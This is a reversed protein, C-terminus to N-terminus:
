AGDRLAMIVIARRLKKLCGSQSLLKRPSLLPARDIFFKSVFESGLKRAARSSLGKDDNPSLPKKHGRGGQKGASYAQAAKTSVRVIM